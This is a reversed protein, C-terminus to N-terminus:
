EIDMPIAVFRRPADDAIQWLKADVPNGDWVSIIAYLWSEVAMELDTESPMAPADPHSHYVGIVDLGRSEAFHATKAFDTPDMEFRNTPSPHVNKGRVSQTVWQDSISKGLLFGFCEQPYTEAAHTNIADLTSKAIKM